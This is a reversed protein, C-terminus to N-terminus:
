LAERARFRLGFVAAHDADWGIEDDALRFLGFPQVVTLSADDAPSERLPPVISLTARGSGDSAADAVVQHLRQRPSALALYDGARLIGPTDPTWGDTALAHGSQGAGMVRPTGTAIGRPERADPDYGRFTGVPGRLEALFAIWAAAQERRMPPLEAELWWQAGARESTQVARSAPSEYLLTNTRLGFRSARFGPSGPM